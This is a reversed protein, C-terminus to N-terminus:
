NHTKRCYDDMDTEKSLLFKLLSVKKYECTQYISMIRLYEDMRSARFFDINKNRHTALLKIAHEAYTNNWSVNDYDLFTFLTNRNKEFRAQYQKSVESVYVTSSVEEFFTDVERRHKHLYREKLGYKDITQVINQLLLTFHRTIYKFEDDFPNKLLDDNLDRILHILCKQQPCNVSYYAPFFDSVLVGKFNKLLDKLFDGERTEKYMSVVEEGNTFIWAYGEEYRMNFPTEDVYIVHSKLINQLMKNYTLEYYKKMYKKIYHAGAESISIQFIENINSKIEKFSQMNVIHQYIVWCKFSHGFNWRLRSYEEPLFACLCTLCKYKHTTYEIFLRRIGYDFFELDLIRKSLIRPIESIKNDGCKPCTSAFIKVCKDITLKEKEKKQMKSKNKKKINGERIHVRERQYDFFSHKNILEIEPSAYGKDKFSFGKNRKINLAYEIEYNKSHSSHENDIISYILKKVEVLAYCDQKNYTVLKDKLSDNQEEEWRERWVISQLGSANEDTWLFGLFSAVEKLGNTYTPLYINSHLFSLINCCSKLIKEGHRLDKNEIHKIMRQLYKYEYSGYHFLIYDQYQSLLSLFKQFIAIEENKNEAWFFHHEMKGEEKVILGILYYFNRDPIAEIDFYIEVASQPLIPTEHVYIKHNQLALAQLEFSHPRTYHSPRKRIRRPRFTYSLQNITFIGKSNFKRIEKPTIRGLLSLHDEQIAQARCM